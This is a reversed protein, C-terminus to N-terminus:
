TGSEKRVPQFPPFYAHRERREPPPPTMYDPGYLRTLYAAVDTHVPREAGEFEARGDFGMQSRPALEGFFHRRGVPYTVLRSRENRCVANVRVWRRTWAGVSGFPALLAGLFSKVRLAGTMVEWTALHRREDFVKRCSYAFGFAMSACGQLLRALPSDAVNELWFVDVCVGPCEPLAVVDDRTIASTGCLRIRPFAFRYDAPSGPEYVVYRGPFRGLLASRFRPWDAHPMNVDLDDDWPIFGRHRVAGLASGGGLAFRVDAAACTEAIDSLMSALSSQLTRLAGGEVTEAGRVSATKFYDFTSLKM